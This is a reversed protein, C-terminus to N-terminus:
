RMTYLLGIGGLYVVAVVVSDYGIGLVAKDRREILGAVYVATVLMGILAAMVSFSGAENLVPGGTYLLDVLFVLAADFLNTGFIDSVAMVVRGLRITALVTSIEPLSTSIAVFVAGFFSNGLGTQEAIAEGSMSLLAGMVLIAVGVTVTAVALRGPSHRLDTEEEATANESVEETVEWGREGTTQTVMTVAYIFCAFLGWTWLGAGLFALDGATAGAAVLGMLLIGLTGQLLVTPDPVQATLPGTRLKIDAVVLIAVQMAFGGLLNNVALAANGSVSATGVVAIEPLSTIGGLLLVGIAAHGIGTRQAIEDAYRSLRTGAVWVVCASALFIVINLWVPFQSFAM